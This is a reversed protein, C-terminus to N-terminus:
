EQKLLIWTSEPVLEGPYDRLFDLPSYFPTHTHTDRKALLSVKKRHGKGVFKMSISDPSVDHCIDAVFSVCVCVRMRRVSQEVCYVAVLTTLLLCCFAFFLLIRVNDVFNDPNPKM